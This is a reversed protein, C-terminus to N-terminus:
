FSEAHGFGKFELFVPILLPHPTNVWPQTFLSAVRSPIDSCESVDWTHSASHLDSSEVAGDDVCPSFVSKKRISNPDRGVCGLSCGDGDVRALSNGSSNKVPYISLRGHQGSVFGVSSSGLPFM